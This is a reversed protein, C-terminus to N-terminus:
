RTAEAKTKRRCEKGRNFKVHTRMAGVNPFTNSCFPCKIKKKKSDPQKAHMLLTFANQMGPNREVCGDGVLSMVPPVRVCTSLTCVHLCLELFQPRPVIPTPIVCLVCLGTAYLAFSSLILVTMLLCARSVRQPPRRRLRRCRRM